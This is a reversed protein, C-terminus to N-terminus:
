TTLCKAFNPNINTKELWEEFSLPRLHRDTYVDPMYGEKEEFSELGKLFEEYAPSTKQENMTRLLSMYKM